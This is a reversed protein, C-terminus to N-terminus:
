QLQAVGGDVDQHHQEREDERGEQDGGGSRLKLCLAIGLGGAGLLDHGTEADEECEEGHLSRTEAAEM